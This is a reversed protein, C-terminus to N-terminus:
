AFDSIHYAQDSDGYYIAEINQVTLISGADEITLTKHDSSGTFHYDELNGWLRLSDFDQGGNILVQGQFDGIEFTDNGRDGFVQSDKISDSQDLEFSIGGTTSKFNAIAAKFFDDGQGLRIESDQVGVVSGYSLFHDDGKGTNFKGSLVGVEGIGIIRDNGKGTLITGGTNDIGITISQSTDALTNTITQADTDLALSVANADAPAIAATSDIAIGIVIDNGEGTNIEGFNIIGVASGEAVALSQAKATAIAVASAVSEAVSAALSKSSSQNIAIGAVVDNGKDTHIQGSNVIGLTTTTSIATATSTSSAIAKGVENIVQSNNGTTLITTNLALAAAEAESMASANALGIILDRGEGTNIYGMNDIGIALTEVIVFSESNATATSNRSLVLETQSQTKSKGLAKATALGVIVDNGTCTSINGSNSIGVADVLVSVTAVSNSQADTCHVNKLTLVSQSDAIASGLANAVGLVTDNGNGTYIGGSNVLGLALANADAATRSDAVITHDM